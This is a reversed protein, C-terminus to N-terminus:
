NEKRSKYQKYTDFSVWWQVFKEALLTKKRFYCRYYKCCLCKQLCQYHSESVPSIYPITYNSKKAGSIRPYIKVDPVISYGLLGVLKWPPLFKIMRYTWTRSNVDPKNKIIKIKTLILYKQWTKKEQTVRFFLYEPINQTYKSFFNLPLYAKRTKELYFLFLIGQQFSSHNPILKEYHWIIQERFRGQQSHFIGKM